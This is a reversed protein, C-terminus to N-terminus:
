VQFARQHAARAVDGSVHAEGCECVQAQVEQNRTQEAAHRFRLTTRGPRLQRGCRPCEIRPKVKYHAIGAEIITSGKTEVAPLRRAVSEFSVAHTNDFLFDEEYPPPDFYFNDRVCSFIDAFDRKLPGEQDTPEVFVIKRPIALIADRRLNVGPRDSLLVASLGRRLVAVHNVSAAEQEALRDIWATGALDILEADAGAARCSELVAAVESVDNKWACFLAPQGANRLCWRLYEGANDIAVM